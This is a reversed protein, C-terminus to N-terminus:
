PEEATQEVTATLSELKWLLSDTLERLSLGQMLARSDMAFGFESEMQIAMRFVMLSDLGLEALPQEPRLKEVSIELEEALQRRLHAQLIEKRDAPPMALLREATLGLPEANSTHAQITSRGLEVQAKKTLEFGEFQIGLMQLLPQGHKNWVFVDAEIANVVSSERVTALSWAPLSETDFWEVSQMGVPVFATADHAHFESSKAAGAVHLASDLYGLHMALGSDDHQQSEITQLQGLAQNGQSWLQQLQRFAPGYQLGISDFREYISSVDSSQTCATQHDALIGGMWVKKAMAVKGM